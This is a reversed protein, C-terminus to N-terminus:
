KVLQNIMEMIKGVFIPLGQSIHPKKNKKVSLIIFRNNPFYVRKEANEAFSDFYLYYIRLPFGIYSFLCGICVTFM